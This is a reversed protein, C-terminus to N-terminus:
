RRDPIGKVARRIGAGTAPIRCVPFPHSSSNEAGIYIVALKSLGRRVFPAVYQDIETGCASRSLRRATIRKAGFVSSAPLRDDCRGHPSRFLAAANDSLKGKGGEPLPRCGQSIREVPIARRIGSSGSPVPFPQTAAQRVHRCRSRTVAHAGPLWKLNARGGTIRQM